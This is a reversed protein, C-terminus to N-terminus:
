HAWLDGLFTFKAEGVVRSTWFASFQIIMLFEEGVTNRAKFVYLFALLVGSLDGDGGLAGVEDGLNIRM